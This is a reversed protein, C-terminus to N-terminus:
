ATNRGNGDKTTVECWVDDIKYLLTREDRTLKFREIQQWYYIQDYGIPEAGSFGSRRSLTIQVYAEWMYLLRTPADASQEMM